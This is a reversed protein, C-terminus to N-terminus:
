RIQAALLNWLRPGDPAAQIEVGGQVYVAAGTSSRAETIGRARAERRLEDLSGDGESQSALALMRCDHKRSLAELLHVNSISAGVLGPLWPLRQALLVRM